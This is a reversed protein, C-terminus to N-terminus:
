GWGPKGGRNVAKRMKCLMGVTRGDNEREVGGKSNCEEFLAVTRIVSRPAERSSYRRCANCFGTPPVANGSQSSAFQPWPVARSIWGAAEASASGWGPAADGRPLLTAAQSVSPSDPALRRCRVLTRPTWEGLARQRLPGADAVPLTMQQGTGPASGIGRVRSRVGAWVGLNGCLRRSRTV